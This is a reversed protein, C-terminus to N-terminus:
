NFKQSRVKHHDREEEIMKLTQASVDATPYQGTFCAKCFTKIRKNQRRVAKEMHLIDQYIVADAGLKAAIQDPTSDKAIFEGRTQM